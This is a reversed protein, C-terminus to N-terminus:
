VVFWSKSRVRDPACPDIRWLAGKGTRHAYYDCLKKPPTKVCVVCRDSLLYKLANRVREHPLRVRKSVEASTLCRGDGMAAMVMMRVKASTM